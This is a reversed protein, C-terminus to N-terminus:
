PRNDSRDGRLMARALSSTSTKRGSRIAMSCRDCELLQKGDNTAVSSVDDTKLSRQLQLTVDELKAWFPDGGGQAPAAQRQQLFRSAHGCMQELFQLYGPRAEEPTDPRQFLEVVGVV